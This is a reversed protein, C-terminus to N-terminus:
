PAEIKEAAAHELDATRILLLISGMYRCLAVRESDILRAVTMRQDPAMTRTGLQDGFGVQGNEACHSRLHTCSLTRLVSVLDGVRIPLVELESALSSSPPM